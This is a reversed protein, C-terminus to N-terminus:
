YSAPCRIGDLSGPQNPSGCAGVFERMDSNHMWKADGGDFIASEWTVVTGKRVINRHGKGNNLREVLTQAMVVRSYKATHSRWELIPREKYLCWSGTCYTLDDDDDAFPSVHGECNDAIAKASRNGSALRPLVYDELTWGHSDEGEILICATPTLRASYNSPLYRQVVALDSENSLNHIIARRM